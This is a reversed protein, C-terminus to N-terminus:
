QKSWNGSADVTWKAGSGDQYTQGVTYDKGNSKVTQGTSQSQQSTPDSGVIAQTDRTAYISPDKVGAIKYYDNLKAQIRDNVTKAIQETTQLNGSVDFIAGGLKTKYDSGSGSGLLLGIDDASISGLTNILEKATARDDQSIFPNFGSSMFKLNVNNFLDPGNLNLKRADNVITNITSMAVPANAIFKQYTSSNRFKYAAAADIASYPKGTQAISLQNAMSQIALDTKTPKSVNPVGNGDVLQQAQDVIPNGTPPHAITPKGDSTTTVIPTTSNMTSAALTPNAALSSAPIVSGGVTRFQGTTANFASQQGTFPNTAVTYKDKVGFQGAAQAMKAQADQATIKGSNFDNVISDISSFTSAPANNAMLGTNIAAAATQVSAKDAKQADISAQLKIKQSDTLDDNNLQLFDEKYKILSEIPDFQAKLKSDIISQAATLNNAAMNASVALNALNANNLRQVEQVQQNAQDRTLNPNGLIGQIQQDSSIKAQNYANYTDTAGQQKTALQQENQLSTTAASKGMEQNILSGIDLRTQANPDTPNQTAQGNEGVTTGQPVTPANANTTSALGNTTSTTNGVTPVKIPATGITSTSIPNNAVDPNPTLGGSNVPQGASDVQGSYSSQVSSNQPANGSGNSSSGVSLPVGNTPNTGVLNKSPVLNGTAM